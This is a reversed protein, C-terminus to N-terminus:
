VRNCRSRFEALETLSEASDSISDVEAPCGMHFEPLEALSEASNDVSDDGKTNYRKEGKSM